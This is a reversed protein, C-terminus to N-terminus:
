GHLFVNYKVSRDGGLMILHRESMVKTELVM